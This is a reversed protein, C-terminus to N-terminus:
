QSILGVLRSNSVILSIHFGSLQIFFFNIIIM